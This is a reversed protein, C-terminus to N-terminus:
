CSIENVISTITQQRPLNKCLIEKLYYETEELSKFTLISVINSGHIAKTYIIDVWINFVFFVKKKKQIFYYTEETQIEGYCNYYEKKIIRFLKLNKM